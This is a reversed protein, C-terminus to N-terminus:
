INKKSLFIAHLEDTDAKMALADFEIMFNATNKKEQKFFEIKWEADAAKMKDSFTTKIKKIFEEWDQTRLEKDLKDLKRQAYIGVVGGRLHALIATIRNNTEIVRNSKLFLRIGRWWDEFKMQDSDFWESDLVMNKPMGAQINESIAALVLAPVVSM